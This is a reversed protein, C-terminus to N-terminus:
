QKSIIFKYKGKLSLKKAKLSLRYIQDGWVNSLRKDPLPVTEVSATFQAADYALRVQKNDKILVVVGDKSIDPQAWTMFNIINAEKSAALQYNDEIVLKDDGLTYKRLWAKVAADKGYAAAIDLSFTKKKEQFSANSAKYDKGFPQPQGNVMPLNHYNSQMTWIKYRDSSFTQRTYTGVGADIFFPLTDIYLSFTGADNHNHSENNYGGKAAFFYGAKNKMYCVETQPYWVSSFSPLSPQTQVLEKYISLNELTRFFDRSSSKQVDFNEKRHLLYAAFHEMSESHIAKGYRFVLGPDGDNRASADAFNVVWGNGVYSYAIYNGMNKIIPKDFISIKGGTAYSLVQLYDYMKGAAHGWYSSGEECAGDEKTYNIFQDVSRMTKYVADALKDRNEEMLLFCLLVNSNCWPNWNNVFAGPKSAQWWYDNRQMYPVLIRTQINEKLRSSIITDVKDFEDHFFYYTWSLFAGMDGSVLEIVNDKPDPLARKRLQLGSLHASIAWSPLNCNYWVGNIIQDMFRGKGEALEAFVLSSLATNNAGNPAEMAARSGSREYELYETAKIVKWEYNLYQEGNKILSAKAEGTFNDWGQRDTYAPYKLWQEKPLLREKVQEPNASKQLLDRATQAKLGSSFLSCLILIYIFNKTSLKNVLTNLYNLTSIYM